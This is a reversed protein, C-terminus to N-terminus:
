KKATQKATKALEKLVNSIGETETLPIIKSDLYGWILSEQLVRSMEEGSEFEWISIGGRGNAFSYRAKWKGLKAYKETFARETKLLEARKEKDLTALYAYASEKLTYIDAIWM